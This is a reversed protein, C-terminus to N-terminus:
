QAKGKTMIIDHLLDQKGQEIARRFAIQQKEIDSKTLEHQELIDCDILIQNKRSRDLGGFIRSAEKINRTEVKSNEINIQDVTDFPSKCEVVKHNESHQIIKPVDLIPTQNIDLTFEKSFYSNGGSFTKYIFVQPNSELKRVIVKVNITCQSESVQKESIDIINYGPEYGPEHREPHLSISDIKLVNDTHAWRTRHKHGFLQIHVNNTLLDEIEESDVLWDCPHHMLSVNLIGPLNRFNFQNKSLILSGKRDDKNSFLTTTIGRFEVLVRESLKLRQTWFPRNASIECGYNSSFDIYSKMPDIIASNAHQSELIETIAHEREWSSKKSEIRERVARSLLDDATNRDVDHNGPVIFIRDNPLELAKQLENLWTRAAKYESDKGAFAIDGTILLADVAKGGSKTLDTIDKQVRDRIHINDDTEPTDCYPSRLHIDSFHILRLM